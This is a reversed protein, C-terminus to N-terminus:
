MIFFLKVMHNVNSIPKKQTTSSQHTIFLITNAINLVCIANDEGNLFYQFEGVIGMTAYLRVRM